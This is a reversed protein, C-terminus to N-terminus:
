PVPRGARTKATAGVISRARFSWPVKSVQDKRTEIAIRVLDLSDALARMQQFSVAEYTRPLTVLNVGSPYDFRRPPTDAPAVPSLPALPGFWVDITARLRQGIRELLGPDIPKAAGGRISTKMPLPGNSDIPSDPSRTM